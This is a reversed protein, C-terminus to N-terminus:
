HTVVHIVAGKGDPLELLRDIESMTTIPFWGWHSNEISLYIEADDRIDNNRPM